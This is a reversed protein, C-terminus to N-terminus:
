MGLQRIQNPHRQWKTNEATGELRGGGGHLYHFTYTRSLSWFLPYGKRMRNVHVIMGTDIIGPHM